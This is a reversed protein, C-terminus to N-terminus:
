KGLEEYIREFNEPMGGSRWYDNGGDVFISECKCMVFDYRHKSEIVTNCVKCRAKNKYEVNKKM